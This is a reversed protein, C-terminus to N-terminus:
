NVLCDHIGLTPAPLLDRSRDSDEVPYFHDPLLSSCAARYLPCSRHQELARGHFEAALDDRGARLVVIYCGLASLQIKPSSVIRSLEIGKRVLREVLALEQRLEARLLRVIARVRRAYRRIARDQTLTGWPDPFAIHIPQCAVFLEPDVPLDPIEQHARWLNVAAASWV